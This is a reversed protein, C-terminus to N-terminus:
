ISCPMTLDLIQGNCPVSFADFKMSSIGSHRELHFGHVVQHMETQEPHQPLSNLLLINSHLSTFQSKQKKQRHTQKQENLIRSILAVTLQVNISYAHNSLFDFRALYQHVFLDRHINSFAPFTHSSCFRARMFGGWQRVFSCM